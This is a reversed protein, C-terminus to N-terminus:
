ACTPRQVRGLGVGPSAPPPRLFLCWSLGGLCLMARPAGETPAPCAKHRHFAGRFVGLQALGTQSPVLAPCAGESPGTLVTRHFSCGWGRRLSVAGARGSLERARASRRGGGGGSVVASSRSPLDAGPHACGHCCAVAVRPAAAELRCRSGAGALIQLPFAGM